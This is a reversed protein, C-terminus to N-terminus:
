MLPTGAFLLGAGLAPNFLAGCAIVDTISSKSTSTISPFYSVASSPMMRFLSAIMLTRGLVAPRLTTIPISEPSLAVLACSLYVVIGSCSHLPSATIM